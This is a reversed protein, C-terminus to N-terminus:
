VGVPWDARLLWAPAARDDADTVLLLEAVAGAVRQVAIGEVKCRRDLARLATIGGDAAVEGVVSGTVAGDAVADASDEAAASFLFGGGPLACGDTLGLPVGHLDGLALTTVALPLPVAGAGDLWRMLAAADFDVRANRPAKRSARQLLTCRSDSIFGGELNLEGFEAHLPAYLPSLDVEVPVDGALLVGRQRQPRSGSGMALLRGDPLALLVELDPKAAKREAHLQPLTGPLLPLWDAAEDDGVSFRALALEDDAVVCLRGAHLLAGSAASVHSPGGAAAPLTLMRLVRTALVTLPM